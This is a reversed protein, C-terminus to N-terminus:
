RSCITRTAPRSREASSTRSRPVRGWADSLPSCRRPSGPAPATTRFSSSRPSARRDSCAGVAYYLWPPTGLRAGVDRGRSWCPGSRNHHPGKRGKCSSTKEGVIFERTQAANLVHHRSNRSPRCPQQERRGGERNERMGVRRRAAFFDDGADLAFGVAPRLARRLRDNADREGHVDGGFLAVGDGRASADGLPHQAGITGQGLCADLDVHVGDLMKRSPPFGHGSSLLAPPEGAVGRAIPGNVHEDGFLQVLGAAPSCTAADPAQVPAVSAETPLQSLSLIDHHGVSRGVGREGVLEAMEESKGVALARGVDHAAATLAVHQPEGPALGVAFAIDCDSVLRGIGNGTLLSSDDVRDPLRGSFVSGNGDDYSNDADYDAMSVAAPWPLRADNTGGPNQKGYAAVCSALGRTLLQMRALFDPRGHVAAALEERTITLLGDNHDAESDGSRAFSDLAYAVGNVSANDVGIAAAADLYASPNFDNSCATGPSAPGARVQGALPQRPAFVIAVPREAPQTGEVIGGTEISFLQLQGNADPNIMPATSTAASKYTGSLAYWLCAGSADQLVPTGVTRWPFRGLVTEGTAGCNGTHAAGDPLGSGADMDPCPLQAPAGPNLDPYTAAYSILAKKAAALAAQTDRDQSLRLRADSMQTVLVSSAAVIIVLMLLLLAAGSQNHQSQMRM